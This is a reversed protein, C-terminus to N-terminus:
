NHRMNCLVLVLTIGVRGALSLAEPSCSRAQANGAM